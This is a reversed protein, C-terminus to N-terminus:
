VCDVIRNNAPYHLKAPGFPRMTSQCTKIDLSIDASSRQPATVGVGCNAVTDKHPIQRETFRCDVAAVPYDTITDYGIIM